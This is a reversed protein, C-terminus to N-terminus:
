FLPPFFLPFTPTTKFLLILFLPPLIQPFFFFFGGGGWFFFFCFSFSSILNSDFRLRSLLLRFFADFFSRLAFPPRPLLYPFPPSPPSYVLSDERQFGCGM